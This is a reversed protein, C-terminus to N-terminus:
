KPTAPGFHLETDAPLKKISRLEWGREGPKMWAAFSIEVVDGFALGELSVGDALPFPMDMSAMGIIAGGDDKFDNIPEHHVRFEARPDKGDPLDTVKGRVTYVGTPESRQKQQTTSQQKGDCGVLVTSNGISAISVFLCVACHALPHRRSTTTNM